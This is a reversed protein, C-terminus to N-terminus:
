HFHEVQKALEQLPCGAPRSGAAPLALAAVLAALLVIMALVLQGTVGSPLPDWAPGMAM